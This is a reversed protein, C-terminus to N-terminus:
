LSIYEVEIAYEDVIDVGTLDFKDKIKQIADNSNEGIIAWHLNMPRDWKDKQCSITVRFLKM